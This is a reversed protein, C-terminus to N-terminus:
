PIPYIKRNQPHTISLFFAPDKQALFNANDISMVMAACPNLSLNVATISTLLIVMAKHLYGKFLYFWYM